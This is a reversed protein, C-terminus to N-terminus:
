LNFPFLIFLELHIGDMLPKVIYICSLILMLCECQEDKIQGDYWMKCCLYSNFICQVMKVMTVQAEIKGLLMVLWQYQNFLVPRVKIRLVNQKFPFYIYMKRMIQILYQKLITKCQTNNKNVPIRFIFATMRAIAKHM